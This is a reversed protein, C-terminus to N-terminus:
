FFFNNGLKSEVKMINSTLRLYNPGLNSWFIPTITAVGSDEYVSNVIFHLYISLIM